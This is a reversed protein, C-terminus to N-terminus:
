RPIPRLIGYSRGPVSRHQDTVAPEVTSPNFAAALAERAASELGPAWSWKISMCSDGRITSALIIGSPPRLIL